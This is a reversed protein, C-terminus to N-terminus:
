DLKYDKGDYKLVSTITQTTEKTDCDGNSDIFAESDTFTNKVVINYYNTTKESAIILTKEEHSFTGTCDTDWDGGDILVDYNHLVKKLTNGSKIFLSLQENEYPNPRSSGLYHVRVGFARIGESLIYPATDIKISTLRIADSTWGNTKYSEFYRQTITQTATNYIVIHSNLEFYHDGEDVIEPIVVITENETNPMKKVAILDNMIPKNEINLQTLVKQILVENEKTYLREQSVFSRDLVIEANSSTKIKSTACQNIVTDTQILVDESYFKLIGLYHTTDEKCPRISFTAIKYQYYHVLEETTFGEKDEKHNIFYATGEGAFPAIILPNYYTYFQMAHGNLYVENHKAMLTSISDTVKQKIASYVEDMNKPQHKVLYLGSYVKSPVFEMKTFFLVDVLKLVLVIGVLSLAWKIRLRKKLIWRILKYGVYIVVLALLLLVILILILM